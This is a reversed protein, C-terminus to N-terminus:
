FFSREFLSFTNRAFELIAPKGYTRHLDRLHPSFTRIVRNTNFSASVIGTAGQAATALM